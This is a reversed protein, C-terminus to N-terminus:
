TPAKPRGLLGDRLGIFHAEDDASWAGQEPAPADRGRKPVAPLSAWPPPPPRFKNRLRTWVRAPLEQVWRFVAYGYVKGAQGPKAVKKPMQWVHCFGAARAVRLLQDVYRVSCGLKGALGHASRKPVAARKFEGKANVYERHQRGRWLAAGCSRREKRGYPLLTGVIALMLAVFRREQDCNPALFPESAFAIAEEPDVPHEDPGHVVLRGVDGLRVSRIAESWRRM